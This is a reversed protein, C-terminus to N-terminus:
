FPFGWNKVLLRGNKRELFQIKSKEAIWFCLQSPNRPNRVFRDSVLVYQRGLEKAAAILLEEVVDVVSDVSFDPMKKPKEPKKLSFLKPQEPLVPQVPPKPKRVRLPIEESDGKKFRRKSELYNEYANLDEQYKKLDEQYKKLNTDHESFAKEYIRVSKKWDKHAQEWASMQEEYSKMKQEFTKESDELYFKNYAEYDVLFIAQQDLVVYGELDTGSFHLVKIGAETLVKPNSFVLNKFIPIIPMKVIGYMGAMKYPLMKRFNKLSTLQVDIKLDNDLSESKGFALELRRLASKQKESFESLLEEAQSRSIINDQLGIIVGKIRNKEKVTFKKTELSKQLSSILNERSSFDFM